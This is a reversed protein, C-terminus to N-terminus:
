KDDGGRQKRFWNTVADRVADAAEKVATPPVVKCAPAKKALQEIAGRSGEGLVVFTGPSTERELSWHHPMVAFM